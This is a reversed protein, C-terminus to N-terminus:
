AKSKVQETKIMESTQSCTFIKFGLLWKLLIPLVRVQFTKSLLFIEDVKIVAIYLIQAHLNM